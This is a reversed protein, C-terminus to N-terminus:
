GLADEIRKQQAQAVRVTEAPDSAVYGGSGCYSVVNRTRWVVTFLSVGQYTVNFASTQDGLKEQISAPDATGGNQKARQSVQQVGQDYLEKAGQDSRYVLATCSIVHLNPSEFQADYGAVREKRILAIEAPTHDKLADALTAPGTHNTDISYGTPLDSLQAVLEKPDPTSALADAATTTTTATAATTTQTQTTTTSGSSGGGCGVVLLAFSAVAALGITTLTYRRLM